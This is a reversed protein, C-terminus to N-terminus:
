QYIRVFDVYMKVEGNSLATIEAINWIGPFNGGVALNFLIFFEKHFYKGPSNDSSKDSINMEYYPEVDHYKDIDLYMRIYNDDWILTYLHFTDQMSYSNTSAKAYNPYAGGNWSLGWHCAGNFYRDQTSNRIGNSHGMELIDIEGCHPWGVSPYDNGMMWFAPWLGNATQPLKISAEIRGHKFFKKEMSTVRGSTATKGQYTEKKATLILCKKESQPEVGLTVNEERYFQLENNGGGDGNVEINWASKDLETASFDDVWVLTYGEYEPHITNEPIIVPETKPDTNSESCASFTLIYGVICAALILVYKKM